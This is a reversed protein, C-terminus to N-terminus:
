ARGWGSELTMRVSSLVASWQGPQTQRLIRVAPYWPMREGAMGYRWEPSFPAMVLAPRGLAGTLHVIATCVTVVGDLACVLAATEDYDDLANPWHALKIGHLREFAALEDSVKGYQLSVFCTGPLRLLPVLQGLELSRRLKGTKVLGGRWSLGLKRGPGLEALRARWKVVKVPDAKLYGDHAPFDEPRRRLFRPLSGIPAQFDPQPDLSRVWTNSPTRPRGFIACGPFSRRFLPTLREDCEVVVQRASRALDPLCSAFMIEDGLGQEAYVLLTKGSLPDGNWDAYPFRVYNGAHTDLNKRSEYRDWGEVYNSVKLLAVGLNRNANPDTPHLEVARRAYDLAATMHGDAESVACMAALADPDDPYRALIGDLEASARSVEGRELIAMALHVALKPHGPWRKLADRLVVEAEDPTELSRLSNSLWIAAGVGTDPDALELAERFTDCAQPWDNGLALARGLWYQAQACYADRQVATRGSLIAEVVNRQKVRLRTLQALAPACYPDRRLALMLADFAQAERHLDLRLGAIAVLTAVQPAKGVLAELEALAEATKGTRALCLAFDRRDEATARGRAIADAFVPVAEEYRQMAKYLRGLQLQLDPTRASRELLEIAAACDGAQELVAAKLALAPADAPALELASDTLSGAMRPNGRQRWRDGEAVLERVGSAIGRPRATRRGAGLLRQWLERRYVHIAGRVDGLTRLTAGLNSLAVVHTPAYRVANRYCDAAREPQGSAFYATGLDNWVESVGPALRLAQRYADIAGEVDGGDQLANGLSHHFYPIRPNLRIAFRLSREAGDRRGARRAAEGLLHHAEACQRELELARNGEHEAGAWDAAVLLQEGRLLAAVVEPDLAQPSKRANSSM